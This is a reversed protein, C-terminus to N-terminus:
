AERWVPARKEIFAHLGEEADNLAMLEEVYAKEALDLRAWPDSSTRRMTRKLVRLAEPRYSTLTAAWLAVAAPLEADPVVRNVLGMTVARAADLNAGLFLLERARKEGLLEQYIAAGFPPFVGLRIEPQGFTASQAAVALDCAMLLELGGGLCVGHVQALTVAPLDWLAEAAQRFSTLMGQMKPRLHDEVAFGASWCRGTGQLVVVRSTRVEPRQCAETLQDLLDQDFVNLPPREWGITAQGDSRSVTLKGHAGM